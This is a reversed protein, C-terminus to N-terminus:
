REFFNGGSLFMRSTKMHDEGVKDVYMSLVKEDLKGMDVLMNGIREALGQEVIHYITNKEDGDCITLDAGHEALIKVIETYKNSFKNKIRNDLVEKKCGFLVAEMIPTSNFTSENVDVGLEILFRVVDVNGYRVANFLPSEFIEEHYNVDAGEEIYFCVDEVSGTKCAELLRKNFDEM